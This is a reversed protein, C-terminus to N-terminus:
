LGAQRLLLATCGVCALAGLLFYLDARTFRTRRYYTRQQQAGFGRSDMALAVHEARRVSIALLPIAYGMIQRMRAVPGGGSTAGRVQHAAQINGLEEHVLPMFRYAAFIAYGIRVPLRAQQILAVVFDVPNTTLVFLMSACFIALLRCMITLGFVLAAPTVRVPGPVLSPADTGPGAYFVVSTWFLGVGLLLWLGLPRRIQALPVNGLKWTALAALLGIALPTLPENFLTVLAAIPLALTLKTLPNLQHLFSDADHWVFQRM